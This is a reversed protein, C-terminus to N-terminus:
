SDQGFGFLLIFCFYSKFYAFLIIMYHLNEIKKFKMNKMTLDHKKVEQNFKYKM